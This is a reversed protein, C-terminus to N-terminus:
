KKGKGSGKASILDRVIKGALKETKGAYKWGSVQKQNPYIVFGESNVLRVIVATTGSESKNQVSIKLVADASEKDSSIAFTKNNLLESSIQNGIQGSSTEDGLIEIYIRKVDALSKGGKNKPSRLGTNEKEVDSERIPVRLIEDSNPSNRKEIKPSNEKAQEVKSPEINTEQKRLVPKNEPKPLQIENTKNAENKIPPIKSNTPIVANVM